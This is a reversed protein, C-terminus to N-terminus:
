TTSQLSRAPSAAKKGFRVVNLSKILDIRGRKWALHLLNFAKALRLLKNAPIRRKGQQFYWTRSGFNYRGGDEYPTFEDGKTNAYIEVDHGREILGTIQGLIFTESPEPFKDVMIAIKM